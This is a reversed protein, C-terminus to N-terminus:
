CREGNDSTFMVYTDSYMDHRDMYDFLRGLIDDMYELMAYVQLPPAPPATDTPFNLLRSTM